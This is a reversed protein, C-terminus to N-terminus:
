IAAWIVFILAKLAKPNNLMSSCCCCFFLNFDKSSQFYFHDRTTLSFGDHNLLIAREKKLNARQAESNWPWNLHLCGLASVM